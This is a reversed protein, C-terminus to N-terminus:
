PAPCSPFGAGSPMPLKSRFQSGKSVAPQSSSRNTKRAIDAIEEIAVAERLLEM